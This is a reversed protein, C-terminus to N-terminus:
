LSFVERCRARIRGDVVTEGWEREAIGGETEDEDEEHWGDRRAVPEFEEEWIGEEPPSGRPAARFVARPRAEGSFGVKWLSAGPDLIIRDETGYLSHREPNWLSILEDRSSVICLGGM